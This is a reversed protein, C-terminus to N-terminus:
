KYHITLHTFVSIFFLPYFKILNTNIALFLFPSFALYSIFMKMMKKLSQHSWDHLPGQDQGCWDRTTQQLGWWREDEWERVM